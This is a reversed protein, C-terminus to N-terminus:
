RILGMIWKQFIPKNQFTQRYKWVLLGANATVIAIMFNPAQSLLLFSVLGAMGLFIVLGEAAFFCYWFALGIGLVIPGKWLTLGTWIGFTTALAKGGRFGLLPSCAHGLVPAISVIALEWNGLQGGWYALGVPIAGKLFDLLLAVVGWSRGGARFVNAAGPNSDGYQRIDEKLFWNGIWVSFPLSGCLFAFFIWTLPKAWWM